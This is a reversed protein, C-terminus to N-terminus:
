LRSFRGIERGFQVAPINNGAPINVNAYNVRAARTGCARRTTWKKWQNGRSRFFFVNTKNEDSKVVVDRGVLCEARQFITLIRGSFFFFSFFDLLYFLVRSCHFGFEPSHVKWRSIFLLFAWTTQHTHSIVCRISGSLKRCKWGNGRSIPRLNKLNNVNKRKILKFRKSSLNWENTIWFM